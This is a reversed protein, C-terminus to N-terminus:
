ATVFRKLCTGVDFWVQYPCIISGKKIPQAARLGMDGRVGTRPDDPPITFSEVKLWRQKLKPRLTPDDEAAAVVKMLDTWLTDPHFRPNVAGAEPACGVDHVVDNSHSINRHPSISALKKMGV